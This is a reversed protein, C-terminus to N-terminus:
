FLVHAVSFTRFTRSCYANNTQKYKIYDYFPVSCRTQLGYKNEVVYYIMEEPSPRDLIANGKFNFPNEFSM